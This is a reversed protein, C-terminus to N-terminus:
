KSQRRCLTAQNMPAGTGVTSASVEGAVIPKDTRGVLGDRHRDLYDNSWGVTLQGALVAGAVAAAGGPRRGAGAALATTFSTVAVTPAAHSARAMAVVSGRLRSGAGM